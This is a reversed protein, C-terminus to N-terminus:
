THIYTSYPERSSTGAVCQFSTYAAAIVIVIVIQFQFLRLLLLLLLFLLACQSTVAVAQLFFLPVAAAGMRRVRHVRLRLCVRLAM